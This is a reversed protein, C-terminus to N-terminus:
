LSAVGYQPGQPCEGQRGFPLDHQDGPDRGARGGLCTAVLRCSM